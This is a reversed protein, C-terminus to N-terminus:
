SVQQANSLFDQLQTNTQSLRFSQIPHMIRLAAIDELLSNTEKSYLLKRTQERIQNIDATMM